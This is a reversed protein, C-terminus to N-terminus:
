RALEKEYEAQVAALTGAADQRGGVMKQLEPTWGEAFIAGTANAIFDMAGNDQAVVKGAALTQSTVSGPKM